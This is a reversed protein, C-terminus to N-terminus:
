KIVGGATTKLMKQLPTLMSLSGGIESHNQPETDFTFSNSVGFDSMNFPNASYGAVIGDVPGTFGLAHYMAAVKSGAGFFYDAYKSGAFTCYLIKNKYPSPSANLQRIFESSDELDRMGPSTYFLFYAFNLVQAPVGLHSTGFTFVRDVDVGLGEKEVAWRAVLGGMSHGYIDVQVADEIGHATLSRALAVANDKIGNTTDHYDYLWIADYKRPPLVTIAKQVLFATDIMDVASNNLGHILIAVRKASLSENDPVVELENSDLSYLGTPSRFLKGASLSGASKAKGFTVKVGVESGARSGALPLFDEAQLQLSVTTSTDRRPLSKPYTKDTGEGLTVAWGSELPTEPSTLSLSISTAEALRQSSVVELGPALELNDSEAFSGSYLRM